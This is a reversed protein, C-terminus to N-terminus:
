KVNETPVAAAVNDAAAANIADADYGTINDLAWLLAQAQTEYDKDRRIATLVARVRARQDPTVSFTLPVWDLDATGDDDPTDDTDDAPTDDDDATDDDTDPISGLFDDLHDTTAANASLLADLDDEAYATGELDDMTQLLDALVQDDYAALDSTRNDALVIRVAADDDVDVMYCDLHRIEHASGDFSLAAALTHNGALVENPRGTHTGRNVVLPRFQGNIRLSEAIASVDGRRPNEHYPTLEDISVTEPTGIRETTM